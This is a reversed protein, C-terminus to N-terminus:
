KGEYQIAYNGKKPPIDRLCLQKSDGGGSVIDVGLRELSQGGVASDGRGSSPKRRQAQGWSM